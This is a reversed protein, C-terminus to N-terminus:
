SIHISRLIEDLNRKGYVIRIVTIMNRAHDPKYYILYHDVTLKRITKDPLYENDVPTGIEPFARARDIAEFLKERLNQAAVPNDLDHAIYHLTNDLDDIAPKTFQYSYESAM